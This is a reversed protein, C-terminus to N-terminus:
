DILNAVTRRYNSGPGPEENALPIAKDLLEVLRPVANGADPGMDGLAGIANWSKELDDMTVAAAFATVYEQGKPKVSKLAVLAAKQVNANPDKAAKLLQPAARNAKEGIYALF